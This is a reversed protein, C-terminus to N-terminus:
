LFILDSPLGQGMNANPPLLFRKFIAPLPYFRRFCCWVGEEMQEPSMNKLTFLRDM